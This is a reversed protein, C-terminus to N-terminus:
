EGESREGTRIKEIKQLLPITARLGEITPPLLLGALRAFRYFVAPLDVDGDIPQPDLVDVNLLDAAPTATVRGEETVHLVDCSEPGKLLVGKFPGLRCM